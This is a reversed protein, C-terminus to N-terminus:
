LMRSSGGLHAATAGPPVKRGEALHSGADVLSCSFVGSGADGPRQHEKCYM